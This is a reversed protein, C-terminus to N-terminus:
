RDRGAWQLFRHISASSTSSTPPADQEMEMNVFNERMRLSRSKSWRKLSQSTPKVMVVKFSSTLVHKSGREEGTSSRSFASPAFIVRTGSRGRYPDRLTPLPVGERRAWWSEAQTTTLPPSAASLEDQRRQDTKVPFPQNDEATIRAIAKEM